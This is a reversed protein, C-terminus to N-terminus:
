DHSNREIVFSTLESVLTRYDKGSQQFAAALGADPSLCPNANVELVYIRNQADVRVDVRGYDRLGFLSFCCRAVHELASILHSPIRDSFLRPTHQYEFSSPDWKARYGVIPYLTNPFDSFDIEALPMVAPVPYGLLSINFERGAIYEEVLVPGFRRNFAAIGRMLQHPTEFISEQDIGISADEFQPKVIVPFRLRDPDFDTGDRFVLHKPTLIGETSLLRKALVKDATLMLASSPSGTFPIQLLELLAAAHWSLTADEDITECLNFVADAAERKLAALARGPDRGIPQRFTHHRLSQLAADIAEVQFLVDVSAKWNRHGPAAPQNFLIGIKM